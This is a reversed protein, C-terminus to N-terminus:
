RPSLGQPQPHTWNLVVTPAKAPERYPITLVFQRGGPAPAIGNRLNVFLELSFMPKPAHVKLSGASHEVDVQQVDGTPGVLFVAKGDPSWHPDSGRAAQWRKRDALSEIIVDRSGSETTAYAIFRGDPSFRANSKGDGMNVLAPACTLESLSAPVEDPLLLPYRVDDKLKFRDAATGTPAAFAHAPDTAVLGGFGLASQIFARRTHGSDM